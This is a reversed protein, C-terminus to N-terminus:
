ILSESPKLCAQIKAIKELFTETKEAVKTGQKLLEAVANQLTNWDMTDPVSPGTTLLRQLQIHPDKTLKLEPPIKRGLLQYLTFHRIDRITDKHISIIASTSDRKSRVELSHYVDYAMEFFNRYFRRYEELLGELEYRLTEGTKNVYKFCLADAETTSEEASTVYYARANMVYEPSDLPNHILESPIEEARLVRITQQLKGTLEGLIKNLEELRHTSHLEVTKWEKATLATQLDEILDDRKDRTGPSTQTSRYKNKQSLLVYFQQTHKIRPRLM